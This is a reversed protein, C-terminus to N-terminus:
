IYSLNLFYFILIIRSFRINHHSPILGGLILFLVVNITSPFIDFCCLLRGTALTSVTQPLFCLLILGLNYFLYECARILYAIKYIFSPLLCIKCVYYCIWMLATAVAGVPLPSVVGSTHTEKWCTTNPNTTFCHSTRSFLDSM